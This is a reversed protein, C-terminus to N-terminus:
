FCLPDTGRKYVADPGGLFWARLGLRLWAEGNMAKSSGYGEKRVTSMKSFKSSIFECSGFYLPMCAWMVLVTIVVTGGLIKYVIGRFMKMEPAWVVHNGLIM